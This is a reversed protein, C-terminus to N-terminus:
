KSDPGSLTISNSELMQARKAPESAAVDNVECEFSLLLLTKM